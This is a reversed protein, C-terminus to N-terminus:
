ALKSHPQHSQRERADFRTWGFRVIALLTALVVVLFFVDDPDTPPTHLVLGATFAAAVPNVARLARRPLVHPLLVMLIMVEVAFGGFLLLADTIEQSFVEGAIVWELYGPALFQHIDRFLINLLLFMWLASLLTRPDQSRNESNM